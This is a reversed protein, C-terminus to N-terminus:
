RRPVKEGISWVIVSSSLGLGSLRGAMMIMTEGPDVMGAELLTKEGTKLMTETSKPDADLLDMMTMEGVIQTEATTSMDKHYLPIVGWILALQNRADESTTLAFTQLGSRFASLRRAMLGSETLVAIKETNMEKAAAAAAKCLAQSTRASTPQNFKVPKRL